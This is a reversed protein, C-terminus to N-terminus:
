IGFGLFYFLKFVCEFGNPPHTASLGDTGRSQTVAASREVGDSPEGAASSSVSGGRGGRWGRGPTAPCDAATLVDEIDQKSWALSLM